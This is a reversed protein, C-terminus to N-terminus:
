KITSNYFHKYQRFERGKKDLNQSYKSGMISKIFDLVPKDSIRVYVGPFINSGCRGIGGSVIGVQIYKRSGELTNYFVLPGGSDGKCSGFGGIQQSSFTTAKIIVQCLHCFM